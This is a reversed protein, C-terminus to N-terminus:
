VGRRDISLTAITISEEPLAIAYLRLIGNLSRGKAICGEEDTAPSLVVHCFDTELLGAM